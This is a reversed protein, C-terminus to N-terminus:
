LWGTLHMYPSRHNYYNWMSNFVWILSMTFSHWLAIFSPLSEGKEYLTCQEGEQSFSKCAWLQKVMLLLFRTNHYTSTVKVPIVSILLTYIAITRIRQRNRGRHNSVSLWERPSHAWRLLNIDCTVWVAYWM